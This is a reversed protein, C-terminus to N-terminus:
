DAKVGKADEGDMVLDKLRYSRGTIKVLTCHHCLRDAIASATVNGGFVDGWQGVPVNTTVVTSRGLLYRKSILQFLLNAGERGIDLYGLEDIVLLSCHEYFRMRKRLTDKEVAHKLDDVLKLCDVFYVQKRALVAEYGLAVSLHTKGVGPSGVLVVNDGRELFELTALQEITGRPVSPQFSWDFDALTKLFPFNAMRTRRDDDARKKLALQKDTLELLTSVLDKEGDAVLRVYDPLVPAMEGLGLTELNSALRNLNSAQAGSTM